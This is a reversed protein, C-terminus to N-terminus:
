HQDDVRSSQVEVGMAKDIMNRLAVAVGESRERLWAVQDVRAYFAVLKMKEGYLAQRGANENIKKLEKAM